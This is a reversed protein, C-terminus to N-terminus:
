KLALTDNVLVSQLGKILERAENETLTIGKGCKQYDESWDRIDYKPASENWSVLCLKKKWGSSGESLTIIHEKIEATINAMTKKLEKNNM